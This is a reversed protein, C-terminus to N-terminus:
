PVVEGSRVLFPLKAVQHLELWVFRKIKEQDQVKKRDCYKLVARVAQEERRTWEDSRVVAWTDGDVVVTYVVFERFRSV